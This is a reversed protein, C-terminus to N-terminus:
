RYRNPPNLGLHSLLLDNRFRLIYRPFEAAAVEDFYDGGLAELAPEYNLTILPNPNNM